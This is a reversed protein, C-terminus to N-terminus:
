FAFQCHGVVMLNGLGLWLLLTVGFTVEGLSKRM